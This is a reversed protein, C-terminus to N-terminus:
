TAPAATAYAVASARRANQVPKGDRDFYAIGVLDGHRKLLQRARRRVGREDTRALARSMAPDHAVTRLARRARDVDAEYISLATSLGQAVRADVKGTESDSTVRFLVVAVAAMPVIVIITFFVFLRGRFSM